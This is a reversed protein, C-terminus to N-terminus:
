YLKKGTLSSISETKGSSYILSIVGPDIKYECLDIDVKYHWLKKGDEKDVKILYYKENADIFILAVGTGIQGPVSFTNNVIDYLKYNYKSFVIVKTADFLSLSNDTKIKLSKAQSVPITGKIVIGSDISDNDKNCSVIMMSIVFM